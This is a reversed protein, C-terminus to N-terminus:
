EKFTQQLIQPTSVIVNADLLKEADEIKEVTTKFVLVKPYLASDIIINFSEVKLIGM